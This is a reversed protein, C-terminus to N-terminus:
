AEKALASPLSVGKLFPILAGNVVEPDELQPWHGAQPLWVIQASDCLDQSAKALGEQLYPDRLGWILLTPVSIRVSCEKPRRLLARYWNIMGTMTGPTSWVKIYRQM